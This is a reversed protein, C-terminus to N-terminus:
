VCELEKRLNLVWGERERRRERERESVLGARRCPNLTLGSELYAWFEGIEAEFALAGGKQICM